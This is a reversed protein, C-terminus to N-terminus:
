SSGSDKGQGRSKAQSFPSAVTIDGTDGPALREQPAGPEGGLVAHKNMSDELRVCLVQALRYLVRSGLAPERVMLDDFRERTMELCRIRNLATVSAVRPRKSLLAMEGFHQGAYLSAVVVGRRRVEVEGTVLVYMSSAPGREQIIEEGAEFTRAKFASLCRVLQAMDLEMFLDLHRLTSLDDDILSKRKRERQMGATSAKVSLMLATINDKGGRESALRVLLPAQSSPDGYDMLKILEQPEEFYGYLGDTCLLFMDDALMDLVLTDVVVTPQPGIARTLMGGFRMNAADEVSAVGLKIADQAYTHDATLQHLEGSRKLYIRSDGVHALIAKDRVVLLAVCTTGMGRLREDNNSHAHVAQSAGELAGSLLEALLQYGQPTDEIADIAARQNRVTELISATATQSALEGGAQGGMGDCVLYLGLEDDLLFTDQNASRVRGTDTVAHTLLHM